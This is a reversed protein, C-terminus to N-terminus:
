YPVMMEVSGHGVAALQAWLLSMRRSSDEDHEPEIAPGSQPHEDIEQNSHHVPGQQSSLEADLVTDAPAEGAPEHRDLLHSVATSLDDLQTQLIAWTAIGSRDLTEEQLAVSPEGTPPTEAADGMLDPVTSTESGTEKMMQSDDGCAGKVEAEIGAEGVVDDPPAASKVAVSMIGEAAKGHPLSARTLPEPAPEIEHSMGRPSAPVVAPPKKKVRFCKGLENGYELGDEERVVCCAFMSTVSSLWEWPDSRQGSQM